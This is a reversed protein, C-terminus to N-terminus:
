AEGGQRTVVERIGSGERKDSKGGNLVGMEREVANVLELFGNKKKAKNTINGENEKWKGGGTGM